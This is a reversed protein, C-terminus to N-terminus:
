VEWTQYDYGYKEKLIARLYRQVAEGEYMLLHQKKAKSLTMRRGVVLYGEQAAQHCEICLSILNDPEDYGGAGRSKIHHPSLGIMVGCNMCRGDRHLIEARTQKWGM